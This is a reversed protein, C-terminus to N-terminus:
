QYKPKYKKVKKGDYYWIDVGKGILKGIFDKNLLKEPNNGLTISAVNDFTLSGHYQLEIYNTDMEATLKTLNNWYKSSLWNSIKDSNGKIYRSTDFLRDFSEVKPNSTFTPQFYEGPNAAELSDDFTWTCRVADKKFRVQVDGYQGIINKYSNTKNRSLLYGYKEYDSREYQRGTYILDEMADTSIDKTASSFMKHSAVLRFHGQEITGDIKSSGLYGGSKGTQFTNLFGKNFISELDSLHVDMGFDNDKFLKKM